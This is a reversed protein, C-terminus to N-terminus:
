TQKCFSVCFVGSLPKVIGRERPCRFRSLFVADSGCTGLFMFVSPRSTSNSRSKASWSSRSAIARELDASELTLPYSVDHQQLTVCWRAPPWARPHPTICCQKVACPTLGWSLGAFCFYCFCSGPSGAKAIKLPPTPKWKSFPSPYPYYTFKNM